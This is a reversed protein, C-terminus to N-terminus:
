DEHGPASINGSQLLPRFKQGGSTSMLPRCVTEDQLRKLAAVVLARTRAEGYGLFDAIRDDAIAGSAPEFFGCAFDKGKESFGTVVVDKDPPMRRQCPCPGIKEVIQAARQGLNVPARLARWM